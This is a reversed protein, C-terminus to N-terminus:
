LIPRNRPPCGSYHHARYPVYQVTGEVYLGSKNVTSYMRVTGDDMM